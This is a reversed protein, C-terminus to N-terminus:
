PVRHVHCLAIALADSADLPTAPAEMGLLAQTMAQVQRKDATGHGVVAKKVQSPAYSTVPVGAAAAAVLAAGRGEGIRLAAPISKGFFAAELAVADPKWRRILRSLEDHIHLLRREIPDGAGPRIVGYALPFLPKGAERALVAYGVRLTGPDVGM